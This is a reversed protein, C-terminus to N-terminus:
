EVSYDSNEYPEGKMQELNLIIGSENEFVPKQMQLYETNRNYLDSDKLVICYKKGAEKLVMIIDQLENKWDCWGGSNTGIIGDYWARDLCEAYVADNAAFIVKEGKKEGYDAAYDFLEIKDQNCSRKEGAIGDWTARYIGFFSNSDSKVIQNEDNWTDIKPVSIMVKEEIGRFSLIALALYIGTFIYTFVKEKEYYKEFYKTLLVFFLIWLLYYIKYYYYASVIGAYTLIMFFAEFVIGSLLFISEVSIRKEKIESIVVYATFPILLLFDMYLESYCGGQKSLSEMFNSLSGFFYKNIAFLSLGVGLLMVVAILIINKFTFIEKKNGGWFQFGLVAAIGIVVTPIFLIYTFALATVGIVAMILYIKRSQVHWEKLMRIVYYSLMAGCGWHCFGGVAYGYMPIGFFFLLCLFPVIIRMRRSNAFELLMSVFFLFELGTILADAIFFSKYYYAGHLVPSLVEMIMANHLPLFHMRTLTHSRVVVMASQFHVALDINKYVLEVNSGHILLFFVAVIGLSAFAMVIDYLRFNLKQVKRKRVSLCFFVVAMCIYIASVSLLSIKVSLYNLVYAGLAGICLVTVMAYSFWKIGNEQKDTKPFLMFGIVTLVFSFIYLTSAIM